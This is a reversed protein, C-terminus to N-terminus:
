AARKKREVWEIFCQCRKMGLRYRSPDDRSYLWGSYCRNCPKFGEKQNDDVQIQHTTALQIIVGPQPFGKGVNRVWSEFAFAVADKSFANLLRDWVEYDKESLQRNGMSPLALTQLYGVIVESKTLLTDSQAKKQGVAPSTLSPQTPM